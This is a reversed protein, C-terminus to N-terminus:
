NKLIKKPFYIECGVSELNAFVFFELSVGFNVKVSVKFVMKLQILPLDVDGGEGCKFSIVPVSCNLVVWSLATQKTYGTGCAVWNVSM